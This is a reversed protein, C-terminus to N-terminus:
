RPSTADEHEAAKVAHHLVIAPALVISGAVLLVILTTAVRETFTTAFGVAFVVIATLFALYGIRQGTRALFSARARRALVDDDGPSTNV